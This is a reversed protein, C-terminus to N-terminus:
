HRAPHLEILTTCVILLSAGDEMEDTVETDDIDTTEADGDADVFEQEEGDDEEGVCEDDEADIDEEGVIRESRLRWRTSVPGEEADAEPEGESLYDSGARPSSCLLEVSSDPGDNDECAAILTDVIEPKTLSEFSSPPTLGATTYLYVLKDKRLRLLQPAPATILLYDDAIVDRGTLLDILIYLMLYQCSDAEEDMDSDELAAPTTPTDIEMEGDCSSEQRQM